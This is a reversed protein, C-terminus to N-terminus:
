YMADIRAASQQQENGLAMRQIQLEVCLEQQIQQQEKCVEVVEVIASLHLRTGVAPLNGTGIALKRLSETDLEICLGEPYMPGENPEAGLLTNGSPAQAPTLKMDIM